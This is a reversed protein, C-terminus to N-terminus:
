ILFIKSIWEWWISIMYKSPQKKHYYVLQISLSLTNIKPALFLGYSFGSKDYDNESQYLINRISGKTKIIEYDNTHIYISDADGYYIKNNEFGDWALIVDNLLRKSNSLKFM